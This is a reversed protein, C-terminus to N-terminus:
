LEEELDEHPLGLATEWQNRVFGISPVTDDIVLAPYSLTTGFADKFQAKAAAKVEPDLLDLHIWQYAVGRAELFEQGRRCFGCTSLALLQVKKDAITGPVQHFSLQDFV